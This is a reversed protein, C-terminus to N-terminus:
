GVLMDAFGFQREVKNGDEDTDEADDIRIAQGFTRLVRLPFTRRNTRVGDVYVHAAMTYNTHEAFKNTFSIHVAFNAGPRARIYRTVNMDHESVTDDNQDVYERAPEEEITIYVELGPLSELIAM